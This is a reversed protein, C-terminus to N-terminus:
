VLMLRTGQRPAKVKKTPSPFAIRRGNELLVPRYGDPVLEHMLPSNRYRQVHTELGQSHQSWAVRCIKESTVHWQSFGELKGMLAEADATSLMNVFAYGLAASTDFDIPFYVFDYKGAFGQTDFLKLVDNRTYNNPLNRVMVTTRRAPGGAQRVTPRSDSVGHTKVPQQDEPRQRTPFGGECTPTSNTRFTQQCAAMMSWQALTAADIMWPYVFCPPQVMGICPAGPFPPNVSNARVDSLKEPQGGCPSRDQHFDFPDRTIARSLEAQPSQDVEQPEAMCGPRSLFDTPSDFSDRTVVRELTPQEIDEVRESSAGHWTAVRRRRRGQSDNGRLPVVFV